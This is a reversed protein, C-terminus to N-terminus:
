NQAVLQTEDSEGEPRPPEGTRSLGGVPTSPLIPFPTRGIKWWGTNGAAASCHRQIEHDCNPGKM